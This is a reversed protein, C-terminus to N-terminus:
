AATLALPKECLVHKGCTAAHLTWERHLSNPVPVYIADVEPDRLLEDYNQYVRAPAPVAGRADALKAPDRSALAFFESNASRGIAPIVELRAIRAHGLVGWRIKQSSETM